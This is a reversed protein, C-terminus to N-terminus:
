RWVFFAISYSIRHSFPLWHLVDWIYQPIRDTKAFGGILRVVACHVRELREIQLRPLGAFISACYDLHSLVFAQVLSVSAKFTLSRAIAAEISLLLQRM